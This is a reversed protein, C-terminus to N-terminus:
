QRSGKKTSHVPFDGKKWFFGGFQNRISYLQTITSCACIKGFIISIQKNQKKLGAALLFAAEIKSGRVHSLIYPSLLSHHQKWDGNTDHHHVICTVTFKHSPEILLIVAQHVM